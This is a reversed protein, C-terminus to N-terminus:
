AEHDGIVLAQVALNWGEPGSDRTFRMGRRGVKSDFRGDPQRVLVPQDVAFLMSIDLFSDGLGITTIQQDPFEERYLQVIFRVASGEDHDGTLVLGDGNQMLRLGFDQVVTRLAEFDQEGGEFFVPESYEHKSVTQSNMSPNTFQAEQMTQVESLGFLQFGSKKRLAALRNLIVSRKIGLEIVKHNEVRGSFSFKVTLSKEPIYIAAGDEVIFPDYLRFFRMFPVVEAATKKTTIILPIRRSRLLRFAPSLTAFTTSDIDMMGGGIGTFVLFQRASNEM